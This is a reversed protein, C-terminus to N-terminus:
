FTEMKTPICPISCSIQLIRHSVTSYFGQPISHIIGQLIGQSFFRTPYKAPYQSSYVKPSFGQPISKLISHVIYRAHYQKPYRAPYQVPKDQPIGLSILGCGEPCGCKHPKWSKDTLGLGFCFLTSTLTVSCSLQSKNSGM